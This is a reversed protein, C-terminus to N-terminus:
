TEELEDWGCDLHLLCFMGAATENCGDVLCM